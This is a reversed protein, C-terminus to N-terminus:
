GACAAARRTATLGSCEPPHPLTTPSCRVVSCGVVRDKDEVDADGQHGAAVGTLLYACATASAHARGLRLAPSVSVLTHERPRRAVRRNEDALRTEPVPHPVLVVACATLPHELALPGGRLVCPDISAIPLHASTSIRRSSPISRFRPGRARARGAASGPVGRRAPRACSRNRREVAMRFSGPVVDLVNVMPLLRRAPLKDSVSTRGATTWSSPAARAFVPGSRDRTPPHGATATV